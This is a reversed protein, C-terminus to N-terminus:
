AAEMLWTTQPMALSGLEEGTLVLSTPPCTMNGVQWAQWM